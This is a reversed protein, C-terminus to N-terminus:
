GYNWVVNQDKAEDVDVHIFTKGIGIRRFGVQIMAQLMLMRDRSSRCAIDTATCEVKETTIHSSSASGGIRANHKKCRCGSNVMFPIGALERAEDLMDTLKISINNLDCCPCSFSELKFHNM